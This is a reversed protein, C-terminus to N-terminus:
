FYTADVQHTVKKWALNSKRMPNHRLDPPHGQRALDFRDCIMSVVDSNKLTLREVSRYNKSLFNERMM